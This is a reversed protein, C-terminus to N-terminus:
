SLALVLALVVVFYSGPDASPCPSYLPCYPTGVLPLAAGHLIPSQPGATKVLSVMTETITVRLPSTTSSTEWLQSLHATVAQLVDPKGAVLQRGCSNLVESVLNVAREKTEEEELQTSTVTCLASVLHVATGADILAGADFGDVALVQGISAITHM